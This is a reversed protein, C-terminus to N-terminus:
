ALTDPEGENQALPGGRKGAGIHVESDLLQGSSVVEYMYGGYLFIAADHREKSRDACADEVVATRFGAEFLGFASHQVCISTILGCLIVTHIGRSRLHEVVAPHSCCNWSPKVFIPEGSRPKAFQEWKSIAPDYLVELSEPAQGPARFARLREVQGLWPSTSNTYAARIFVIPTGTARGRDILQRVVEPFHPFDKRIAPSGSWYEPQVDIVILATGASGLELGLEDPARRPAVDFPTPGAVDAEPAKEGDGQVAATTGIRM